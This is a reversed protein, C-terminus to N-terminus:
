NLIWILVGFDPHNKLLSFKVLFHYGFIRSCDLFIGWFGPAGWSFYGFYHCMGEGGRIVM